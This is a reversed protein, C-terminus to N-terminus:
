VGDSNLSKSLYLLRLIVSEYSESDVIKYSELLEITSDDLRMTSVVSVKDDYPPMKDGVNDILENVINDFSGDGYEKLLMKNHKQIQIVAM